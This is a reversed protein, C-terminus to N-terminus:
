YGRGLDPGRDDKGAVTSRRPRSEGQQESLSTHVLLNGARNRGALRKGPSFVLGRASLLTRASGAFRACRCEAGPHQFGGTGLPFNRDRRANRLTFGTKAAWNGRLQRLLVNQAWGNM